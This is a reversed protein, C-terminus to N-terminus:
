QRQVAPEKNLRALVERIDLNVPCCRICRGCGVCFVEEMNEVTYLFKHLIRQRMREKKSPRPNHGSAHLTFLPYQCSDWSRIRCGGQRTKEDTIDFCHCTPCMFTCLGCGLCIKSIADWDDREFSRELKEKLETLDIKKLKERAKKVMQEKADAHRQEADSMLSAHEKLFAEGKATHTEMLLTDQLNYAVIDAGVNDAPDGGITTCFCTEHPNACALSIVVSKERRNMYYPDEAGGFKGFLKDLNSLARGDCPRIGFVLYPETSQPVERLEDGKLVCVVESQPLFIGKPSMKFNTFELLVPTDPVYEALVADERSGSPAFVKHKGAAANLLKGIDKKQIIKKM